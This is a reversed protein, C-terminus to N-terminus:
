GVYEQTVVEIFGEDEADFPDSWFKNQYSFESRLVHQTLQYIVFGGNWDDDIGYFVKKGNDGTFHVRGADEDVVIDRPIKRGRCEKIYALAALVRIAQERTVEPESETNMGM